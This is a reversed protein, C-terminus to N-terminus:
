FGTGLVTEVRDDVGACRRREAAEYPDEVIEFGTRGKFLAEAEHAAEPDHARVKGGADLVSDILNLSPAERMDDTNPKFSLGWVAVTLGSM